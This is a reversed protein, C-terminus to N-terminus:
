KNTNNPIGIMEIPPIPLIKGVPRFLHLCGKHNNVYNIKSPHYQVVYQTDDWFIDKIFSMMNWTPPITSQKGWSSKKKNNNNIKGIKYPNGKLVVVAVHQWQEDQSVITQLWTIKKSIPHKWPIIFVGNNGDEATSLMPNVTKDGTKRYREPVKFM